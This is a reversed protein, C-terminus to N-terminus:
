AALFTINNTLWRGGVKQLDVRVRDYRALKKGKSATSSLSGQTALLVTASDKDGSSYGAWIVQATEVSKSGTRVPKSEKECCPLVGTYPASSWSRSTEM